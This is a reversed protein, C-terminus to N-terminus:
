LLFTRVDEWTRLLTNIVSSFVLNQDSVDVINEPEFLPNETKARNLGNIFSSKSVFETSKASFLSNNPNQDGLVHDNM